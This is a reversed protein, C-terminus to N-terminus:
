PVSRIQDCGEVPVGSATQGALCAQTDGAPLGAQQTRFHLVLDPLGDKNVDMFFNRIPSASDPGFVVSSLSVTRADFTATSLIAVPIVGKSRLNVTNKSNGPRIDIQIDLINQQAEVAGIDCRPGQPRAVGRQDAAECAGGGSGPAAPNGTDIAPSGPLPAQTLSSGGNDQLPALMPAIGLLDGPANGKLTCGNLDQILNYGLSALTGSCDSPQQSTESNGALISNQLTAANGNALGGTSKATNDALTTNQLLLTGTNYIGGGADGASNGSVTTNILTLIGSNHIGGGSFCLERDDWGITGCLSSNGSITSTEITATGSNEIGGGSGLASNSSITSNVIYMNGANGIGGGPGCQVPDCGGFNGTIVSDEITLTGDSFIAGSGCGHGSDNNALTIHQLTLTGHNYIPGSCAGLGNAITFNMFHVTAGEHIGFMDGLDSGGSFTVLGGGDMTLDRDFVLEDVLITVPGPGCNFTISGGTPLDALAQYLAGYTCTEPSGDGIVIPEAAHARLSHSSLLFMVILFSALGYGVRGTWRGVRTMDLKKQMAQNGKENRTNM